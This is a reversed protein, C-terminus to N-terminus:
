KCISRLTWIRDKIAAYYAREAPDVANRDTVALHRDLMREVAVLNTCDIYLSGIDQAPPRHTTSCGALILAAMVLVPKM